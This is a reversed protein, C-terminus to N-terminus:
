QLSRKIYRGCGAEVKCLSDEIAVRGGTVVIDPHSSVKVGEYPSWDAMEHLKESEIVYPEKSWIVLDGDFGPLLQGKHKLGVIKAPNTACVEVWRNLSMNPLDKTLMFRTEISSMGGPVKNFATAAYKETKTFPCHDSSVSDLAGRQLASSIAKQHDQSRLPPSCIPLPGFKAFAEINLCTYHPCTEAFVVDGRQRARELEEIDQAASQHFLFTKVGSLHSIELVRHVAEAEFEAPRSLSHFLPSTNHAQLNEQILEQIIPWNEAHVVALGRGKAIAKFSRLLQDDSLAFGYATYHKFSPCGDKILGEIQDLKKLDHPLISMHLSFDVYCQAQAQECRLRLAESLSQDEKSEVFDMVTTTGGFLAARTATAFTDTTDCGCVHYSMHAHVDVGGPTVIRGQADVATEAELFSLDEGIAAIKGHDVCIDGKIVEGPLVLLGNKVILEM